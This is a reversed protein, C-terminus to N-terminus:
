PEGAQYRRQVAQIRSSILERLWGPSVVEVRDLRSVIWNSLAETPIIQDVSLVHHTQDSAATVRQDPHIPHLEIDELLSDHHRDATPHIHLMLQIPRVHQQDQVPSLPVELKQAQIYQQLDFHNTRSADRQLVIDSMLHFAYTKPIQNNKSLPATSDDEIAILYLKPARVVIACPHLHRSRNNYTATIRRGHLLASSLARFTEHSTDRAMLAHGRPHVAVNKLYQGVAPRNGALKSEYREITNRARQFLDNLTSARLEEPIVLELHREALSVLLAEEIPIATRLSPGGKVQYLMRRRNNPDDIATIFGGFESSERLQKLWSQVTRLGKDNSESTLQDQGWATNIQLHHLIEQVTRGNPSRHLYDLLCLRADLSTSMARESSFNGALM